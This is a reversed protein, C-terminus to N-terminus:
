STVCGERASWSVPGRAATSVGHLHYVKSYPTYFIEYGRNRLAQCFIWDSRYHPGNGADLLGVEDLASRRILGCFLPAFKLEVLGAAGEVPGIINNHHVSLNVDIEFDDQSHPM